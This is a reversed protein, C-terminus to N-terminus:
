NMLETATLLKKDDEISLGNPPAGLLGFFSIYKFSFPGLTLEKTGGPM